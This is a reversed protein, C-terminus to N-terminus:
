VESELWLKYCYDCINFSRDNERDVPTDPCRFEDCRIEEYWHKEQIGKKILQDRMRMKM